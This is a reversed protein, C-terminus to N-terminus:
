DKAEEIEDEFAEGFGSIAFIADSLKSVEGALLLTNLADLPTTVGIKDLLEKKSFDPDVTQGLIISNLLGKQDLTQTRSSGKGTIRTNRKVYSNYEDNGMAKIEFELEGFRTGIAVKEPTGINQNKTLFAELKSLTAM